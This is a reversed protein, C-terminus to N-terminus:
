RVKRPATTSASTITREEQLIKSYCRAETLHTFVLILFLQALLKTTTQDRDPYSWALRGVHVPRRLTLGDKGRKGDIPGDITQRPSILGHQSRQM